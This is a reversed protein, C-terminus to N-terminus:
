ADFDGDIVDAAVDGEVYTGDREVETSAGGSDLGNGSAGIAIAPIGIAFGIVGFFIRWFMSTVAEGAGNVVPIVGMVVLVGETVLGAGFVAVVVRMMRQEGRSLEGGV